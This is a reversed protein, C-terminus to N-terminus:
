HRTPLGVVEFGEVARPTVDAVGIRAGTVAAVETLFTCTYTRVIDTMDKETRGGGRQAVMTWQARSVFVRPTAKM